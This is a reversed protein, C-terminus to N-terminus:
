VLQKAALQSFLGGRAILEDFRGEEVVSGGEMVFIRDAHQVTSLRHAVVIRTIGMAELSETVIEQTRNDLASTAEDLVLIRPQRALARAIMLRQRQGGSLTGGGDTILTHLGMPMDAIDAALGAARAATMAEDLSLPTGSGINELLSGAMVTGRQLVVGLQRRIARRDLRALDRGDFAIIGAEPQAFGLLLRVLTSKGSGSPGVIAVFEGPNARISVDRLTAPLGPGYRFTVGQVEIRGQLPGQNERGGTEEPATELILKAREYLPILGLIAPLVGTLSVIAATFQGFAASFAAYDGLGIETWGFGVGAILAGVSLLAWAAGFAGLGGALLAMRLRLHSQEAFLKAFRAFGREEAAATKLKNIMEILELSVTRSQSGVELLRRQLGIQVLSAALLLSAQVLALGAAIWALRGGYYILLVFNLIGFLAALAAGIIIGDVAERMRNLADARLALDAAPRGRFFDAPLRLLRDWIAAELRANTHTSLRLVAYSRVLGFVAAGIAAALLAAVIQHLEGTVSSPIISDFLIGTAVPTALGLLGGLVTVMTITVLERRSTRLGFRVLDRTTIARDPLSPNLSYATAQLTAAATASAVTRRSGDAGVVTIAGRRRRLLSPRSPLLAVPSSGEALFGLLPEELTRWWDPELRIRRARLRMAEAAVLVAQHPDVTPSLPATLSPSEGQARAVRAIAAVLPDAHVSVADENPDVLIALAAALSRREAFKRGALRQTLNSEDDRLQQAIRSLSAAHFRDIAPWFTGEALLDAPIRLRVEVTGVARVGAGAAPTIVVAPRGPVAEAFFSPADAYELRGDLVELWAVGHPPRLVVGDPMTTITESPLRSEGVDITAGRSVGTIWDELAPWLPGPIEHAAPADPQWQRLRTGREPWALVPETPTGLMGALGGAAIRAFPLTAGARDPAALRLELAGSEVVIFRREGTFVIPGGGPDLPQDPLDDVNRNM